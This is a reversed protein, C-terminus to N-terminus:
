ISDCELRSFQGQLSPRAGSERRHVEGGLHLNKLKSGLVWLVEFELNEVAPFVSLCM